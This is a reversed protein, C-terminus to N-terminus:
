RGIKRTIIRAADSNGLGANSAMEVHAALNGLVPLHANTRWQNIQRLAIADIAVPDKSALLTAYHVAYNPAADPGGAYQAVLGDMINLVVKKSVTPDAYMEVLGSAGFGSGVASFRRWNDVNPVTMNYLCGAIGNSPSDGMVPVNIVKTVARTLIRCFHSESSTNEDDSFLPVQGRDSRYDLDGWILNGMIPASFIAKADYGDRPAVSRLEYGDGDRYGAVRAGTPNRDWVIISGRPIGASALGDAIATVVSRHTAFLEGGAASIKIGVKDAPSVLSRWARAVDPQGTVGLVLRNVMGRVVAPDTRYHQIAAPDHAIYVVSPTPAPRTDQALAPAVTCGLALAIRLLM